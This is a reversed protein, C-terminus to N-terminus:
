YRVTVGLRSSWHVSGGQFSQTCSDRGCAEDGAPYGLRGTERGRDAWAAGIAGRVARAGTAPSWYVSGAQFVQRCGGDRLGCVQAAVPYGLYGNEQGTGVWVQGIGGWVAHAGAAPTWLISGGAFAQACGGDRLGCVQAAVPHGLHGNEQGMAVWVQGIGGWVAHAGAAPTWFM